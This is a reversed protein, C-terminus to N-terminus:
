RFVNDQHWKVVDVSPHDMTHAPLSIPAAALAAFDGGDGFDAHLHSSVMLRRDSTLGLYGQDFLIHADSRLLLGNDTRHEGGRTVPRIHAAQLTPRIKSGTVACHGDYRDLMVAKFAQQGLRPLAPKPAGFMPGSLHWPEAIDTTVGAEIREMLGTFYPANEDKDLDYGKGQVVNASWDPPPPATDGEPFFFLDRLMICGILPDDATGIPDNRRNANLLKRLEEESAAGNGLGFLGWAVSVSLRAFESYIGGGVIRHEPFKTKFLFPEGSSIARFQARSSPKWFNAEKTIGNQALFRYWSQDTVGVFVRM